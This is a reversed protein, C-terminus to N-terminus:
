PAAEGSPDGAAEPGRVATVEVVRWGVPDSPEEAVTVSWRTLGAAPVSEVAEGRADVLAYASRQDVVQVRALGGGLDAREVALVRSGLGQPRLGRERLDAVLGIDASWAASGPRAYDAVLDPDLATLARARRRDLEALVEWWDPPGASAPASPDAAATPTPPSAPQPGDSGVGGAAEGAMGVAAAVGPGHGAPGADVGALRAVGLIAALALGALVM